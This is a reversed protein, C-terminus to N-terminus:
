DKFRFYDRLSLLSMWLGILGTIVWGLLGLLSVNGFVYPPIRAFMILSSGIILSAMIISTGLRSTAALLSKRVPELSKKELDLHIKGKRVTDLIDKLDSPLDRLLIGTDALTFIVENALKGPNFKERMFKKAYPQTFEVLNFGPDLSQGIGEITLVAKLLLYLNSPIRLHNMTIIDFSQHILEPIRIEELPMYYYQEVMEAIEQELHETNEISGQCLKLITRTARTYNKRIVAAVLDTLLEKQYSPLTGMMGFDLFCLVNDELILINGSHPDAHFFGYEFIQSLILAAGRRAIKKVDVDSLEDILTLRKGEVYEMVLVSQSCLHHYVSLVKVRKDNKYLSNFRIINRMEHIFDMEQHIVWEFHDIVENLNLQAFDEFASEVITVVHHLIVIDSAIIHEIGPRRIKVAVRDGNILTALHVQAISASAHPSDEFASFVQDLSVGLEDELIRRAEENPFPAVRDQLKELERILEPPLIDPRTSLIQGLKIFTPGLEELAMRIRKWRSIHPDIVEQRSIRGRVKRTLGAMDIFEGFGYKMLITLIQRYRKLHQRWTSKSKHM